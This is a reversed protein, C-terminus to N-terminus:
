LLDEWAVGLSKRFREIQRAANDREGAYLSGCMALLKALRKRDPGSIMTDLHLLRNIHRFEESMEEELRRENRLRTSESQARRKAERDAERQAKLRDIEAKKVALQLRLLREAADAPAPGPRRRPVDEGRKRARYRRMREAATMPDSRPM